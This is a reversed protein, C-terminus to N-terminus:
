PAVGTATEVRTRQKKVPLHVERQGDQLVRTAEVTQELQSFPRAQQAHISGAHVGWMRHNGSVNANMESDVSRAVRLMARQEADTRDETLCALMIVSTVDDAVTM